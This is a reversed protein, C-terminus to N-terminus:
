QHDPPPPHSWSPVHTRLWLKIRAFWGPRHPKPAPAPTADEEEHHHKHHRHHRLRPRYSSEEAAPTSTSKAAKHPSPTPSPSASGEAFADATERTFGFSARLPGPSATPVPAPAAAPQTRSVAPLFFASFALAMVGPNRWRRPCAARAPAAGGNESQIPIGPAPRPLHAASSMIVFGTFVRTFQQKYCFVVGSAVDWSAFNRGASFTADEGSHSM